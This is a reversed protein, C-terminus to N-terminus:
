SSAMPRMRNHSSPMGIGNSSSSTSSDRYPACYSASRRRTPMWKPDNASITDEGVIHAKGRLRVHAYVTPGIMLCLGSKGWYRVNVPATRRDALHWYRGHLPLM